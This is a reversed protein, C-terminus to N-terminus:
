MRRGPRALRCTPVAPRHGPRRVPTCLTAPVSASTVL